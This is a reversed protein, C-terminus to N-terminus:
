EGTVGVAEAINQGACMLAHSAGGQFPGLPSVRSRDANAAFQQAWGLRDHLIIRRQQRDSPFILSTQNL